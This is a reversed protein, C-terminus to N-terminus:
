KKEKVFNLLNDLFNTLDEEDEESLELSRVSESNDCYHTPSDIDNSSKWFSAQQIILDCIQKQKDTAKMDQVIRESIVEAAEGKAILTPEKLTKDVEIVASRREQNDETMNVKFPEQGYYSAKEQIKCFVDQSVIIKNEM